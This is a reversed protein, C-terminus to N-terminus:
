PLARRRGRAILRLLLLLVIAGIFAVFITGALGGFPASVDLAGFLWGGIFAGVIGVVIDGILGFGGGVVASALWGAILGVVLWLLVTEVSM